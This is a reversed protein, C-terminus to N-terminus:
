EVIFALDKMQGNDSATYILNGDKIFALDKKKGREDTTFAFTENEILFTLDRKNSNNGATFVLNGERIFTLDKKQGNEDATYIKVELTVIESLSTQNNTKTGDENTRSSDCSFLILTAIFLPLLKTMTPLNKENSLLKM